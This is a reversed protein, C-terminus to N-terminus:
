KKLTTKDLRNLGEIAKDYNVRIKLTKQYDEYAHKYDGALEFAYGRNFYAEVYEPDKKISETFFQVAKAFDKLYVLYIYGTNFSAERFASDSRALMQYTAIAKDYKGTEQYHLGLMYLAERSMPRLNLANKFYLEAMPDKKVAYLEGLEVYAEYYEQNKDVAQKLDAVAHITDGQELLGIARTFYAAANGNDVALIQKVTIYCNKYDKVILYLKALKLAADMDGANKSRAKILADRCDEPKGMLLYIDSLTVYFTSRAGDLSIARNIDSLAKDFQHDLLYFKARKNYLDPNSVDSEIQKNLLSLTVKSSDANDTQRKGADEGSQCASFAMVCIFVCAIFTRNMRLM